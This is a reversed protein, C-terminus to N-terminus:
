NGILGTVALRMAADLPMDLPTLREPNVLVTYGGIQYSMPMYVAVPGAALEEILEEPNQQTVFGVLQMDDGMTVLVARGLQKTRGDPALMDMVSSLGGYIMKIVPIRELLRQGAGYLQRFGWAQVLIGSVFILLLAAVIGYGPRYYHAAGAWVWVHQFLQEAGAVLWVLFYLTIVLPALAVLGALFYRKLM